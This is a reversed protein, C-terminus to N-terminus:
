EEADTDTEGLALLDVIHRAIAGTPDEDLSHFPEVDVEVDAVEHYLASLDLLWARAAEHGDVIPQRPPSPLRVPGPLDSAALQELM